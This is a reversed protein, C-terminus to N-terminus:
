IGKRKTKHTLEHTTRRIITPFTQGCVPCTYVAM